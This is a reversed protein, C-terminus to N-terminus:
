REKIYCTLYNREGLNAYFEKVLARRRPEMNQSVTELVRLEVEEKFPSILQKFGRKEVYGKKALHKKFAEEEKNSYFARVGGEEVVVEIERPVVKLATEQNWEDARDRFVEEVM